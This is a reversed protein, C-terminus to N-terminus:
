CRGELAAAQLPYTFSATIYSKRPFGTVVTSPQNNGTPLSELTQGGYGSAILFNLGLDFSRSEFPQSGNGGRPTGTRNPM